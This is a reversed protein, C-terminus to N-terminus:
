ASKLKGHTPILNISAQYMPAPDTMGTAPQIAPASVKFQCKVEGMKVVPKGSVKLKKCLQIKNIKDYKLVGGVYPGNIYPWAPYFKKLTDDVDKQLSVNQGKVKMKSTKSQEPNSVPTPPATQIMGVSLTGKNVVM